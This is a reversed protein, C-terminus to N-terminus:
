GSIEHTGSFQEKQQKMDKTVYLPFKTTNELTRGLTRKGNQATCPYGTGHDLVCLYVQQKYHYINLDVRGLFFKIVEDETVRQVSRGKSIECTLPFSVFLSFFRYNVTIHFCLLPADLVM